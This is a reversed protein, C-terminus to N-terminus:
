STQDKKLARLLADTSTVVTNLAAGPTITYRPVGGETVLSRWLRLEEELAQERGTQLTTPKDLGTARLLEMWQYGSATSGARVDFMGFAAHIIAKATKRDIAPTFDRRDANRKEIRDLESEVAKVLQLGFHDEPDLGEVDTM